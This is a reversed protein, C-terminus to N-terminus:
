KTTVLRLQESIKEDWLQQQKSIRSHSTEGDYQNQMTGMETATEKYIKEIVAAYNSNTLTASKLKQIFLLTHFYAIDFHKQEHNLIYPTNNGKRVWSDKKSFNCNVNIVLQSINDVRRFALKLGFGANTLAAADSGQAPKGKFDDWTLSQGQQYYIINQDDETASTVYNVITTLKQANMALSCFLVIAVLIIKKNM